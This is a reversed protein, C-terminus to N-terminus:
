AFFILNLIKACSKNTVNIPFIKPPINIDNNANPELIYQVKSPALPKWIFSIPAPTIYKASLFIDVSHHVFINDPIRQLMIVNKKNESFLTTWRLLVMKM